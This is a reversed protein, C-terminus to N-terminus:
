KLGKKAMIDRVFRHAAWEPNKGQTVSRPLVIGGEDLNKKVTDNAYSNKAGGVKPKGPIKEGVKMPNKGKAVEQVASPNLYLEGPSVLAPVKGGQAAMPTDSDNSASMDQEQNAGSKPILAADASAYDQQTQDDTRNTASGSAGNPQFLSKLGQGIGQGITNGAKNYGNQPQQPQSGQTNGKMFNVFGSKPQNPSSNPTNTVQAVAPAPAGQVPIQIPSQPQPTNQTFPDTNPDISVYQGAGPSGYAMKVRGGKALGPLGLATGAGGLVGGLLNGQNQMQQQALGGQVQNSSAISSLLAQQEATNAATNAQTANAQQGVMQAQQAQLQQQAAIQQNAAMTAGQGVAQQQTNAGQQAAQRAILGANASSGRQGAMLAAQNQVNQGTTQNLQAMAPNPGQGAARQQLQGLLGQQSTLAAQGGPQVANAFAQQQQLANQTNAYAQNTQQTTTPTQVNAGTGNTGGATGLLGSIFSM